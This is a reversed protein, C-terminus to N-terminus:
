ALYVHSTSEHDEPFKVEAVLMRLLRFNFHKPPFGFRATKLSRQNTYAYTQSLQKLERYDRVRPKYFVLSLISDSQLAHFFRTKYM